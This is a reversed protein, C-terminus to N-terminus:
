WKKVKYAEVSLNDFNETDNRIATLAEERSTKYIRTIFSKRYLYMDRLSDAKEVGNNTFVYNHKTDSLQM